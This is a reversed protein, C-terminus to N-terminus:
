FNRLLYQTTAVPHCNLQFIIYAKSEDQSKASMHGCSQILIRRSTAVSPVSVSHVSVHGSSPFVNTFFFGVNTFDIQVSICVNRHSSHQSAIQALFCAISATLFQHQCIDISCCNYCYCNQFRTQFRRIFTNNNWNKM